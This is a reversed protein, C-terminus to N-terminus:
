LQCQEIESNMTCYFNYKTGIGFKGAFPCEPCLFGKEMGICGDTTGNVCFVIRKEGKCL